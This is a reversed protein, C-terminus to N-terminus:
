ESTLSKIILERLADEPLIVNFKDWFSPDYAHNTESFIGRPSIRENRPFSEVQENDIQCTVMEFWIKTSSGFLQRKHRVKFELDGRVRNIYYLGNDMARYSIHYAAKKLTLRYHRSLRNVYWGIAKEVYMPHVEFRCELLAANEMDIYMEGKYFPERIEKKQEFTIVNVLRNDVVDIDAHTYLYPNPRNHVELFDPINKVVDLLLSSYIGSKIKTFITDNVQWDRIQRMKILKAQDPSDSQLGTKYIKLVAEALDLNRNKREVGERYFVTLLTPKTAYNATRALLMADIEKQPDVPRVIVEQLPIVRPELYIYLPTDSLSDVRLEKNEYGIHSFKISSHRMSGPLTMKFVGNGNTVTGTTTNTLSVTAFTVAERSHADLVIGYITLYFVDEQQQPIGSSTNEDSSLTLAIHSGLLEMRLNNRGTILQILSRLTYKGKRISVIEDNNVVESDYVFLYGTQESLACLLSYRTDTTSEMKVETNPWENNSLAITSTTLLLTFCVMRIMFHFLKGM